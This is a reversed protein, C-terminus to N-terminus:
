DDGSNPDGSNPAPRASWYTVHPQHWLRSLSLGDQFRSNQVDGIGLVQGTRVISDSIHVGRTKGGLFVFYESAYAEDHVNRISINGVGGFLVERDGEDGLLFVSRLSSRTKATVYIDHIWVSATGSGLKIVYRDSPDAGDPLEDLGFHCSGDIVGGANSINGAPGVTYLGAIPGHPSTIRHTNYGSTMYAGGRKGRFRWNNRDTIHIIESGINIVCAGGFDHGDGFNGQIKCNSIRNFNPVNNEWARGLFIGCGPPSSNRTLAIRLGSVVCSKSGTMDIVPASMLSSPFTVAALSGIEFELAVWQAQRFDLPQPWAINKVSPIPVYVRGRKAAIALYLRRQIDWFEPYMAPLIEPPLLGGQRFQEAQARAVTSTPPARLAGLFNEIESPTPAIADQAPATATALLIGVAALCLIFPNM